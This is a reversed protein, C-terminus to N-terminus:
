FDISEQNFAYVKFTRMPNRATEIEGTYEIGIELGVPAKELKRNLDFGLGVNVLDGALCDLATEVGEDSTDLVAVTPKESLKMTVAPTPMSGTQWKSIIVGRLLEGPHEWRVFGKGIQGTQIERGENQWQSPHTM